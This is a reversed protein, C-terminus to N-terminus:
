SLGLCWSSFVNARINKSNTIVFKLPKQPVFRSLPLSWKGCDLGQEWLVVDWWLKEKVIRSLLAPNIKAEFPRGCLFHTIGACFILPMFLMWLWQSFKTGLQARDQGYEKPWWQQSTGFLSPYEATPSIEATDQTPSWWPSCLNTESCITTATILCYFVPGLRRSLGVRCGFACVQQVNRSM